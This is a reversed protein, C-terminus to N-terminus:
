FLSLFWVWRKWHMVPFSVYFQNVAHFQRYPRDSRYIDFYNQQSGDMIVTRIAGLGEQLAKFVQKSKSTIRSSNNKLTSQIKLAIFCYVSGFLLVAGTAVYKDILLLGTILAIAVILGSVLQPLAILASVTGSIQSTSVSIVESSNRSLHVSYPQYLTRRYAECSFDSGIAAALRVYVWLNTIRVLAAILAAVVFLATVLLLLQSSDRIGYDLVIRQVLPKAM